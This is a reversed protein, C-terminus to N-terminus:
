GDRVLTGFFHCGGPVEVIVTPVGEIAFSQAADTARIIPLVTEESGGGSLSLNQVVVTEGHNVTKGNLRVGDVSSTASLVATITDEGEAVCSAGLSLPGVDALAKDPEGPALLASYGIVNEPGSPGQPGIAGATGATGAPGAPGAPGQPGPTGIASLRLRAQVGPSLKNWGISHAPIHFAAVAGGGALLGGLLVFVLPVTIKNTLKAIM